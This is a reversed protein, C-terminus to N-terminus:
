GAPALFERLVAPLAEPLDEAILGPGKSRGAAGHLWVAASAAEFAEMGQALLGAIFGALVDGSGATALWPPADFAISARGDPHAVVTDPGKLLVTAGTAAAAARVRAPKGPRPSPEPGFLRAFEGEHPTLAVPKGSRAIAAALTGAEGAFSTLADADLVIARPATSVLAALVLARTAAGVGLGPGLVLANFRRDELIAALDDPGDCPALMIATVHSANITLADRPSALTVLGAGARLAGRASLRAAGTSWPGGSVVLAHGRSYKHGAPSPAPFRARWLAPVNAFARPRVIELASEAIGIDRVRLQGCLTRGPTLFHGPRPRFFCVTADAEVAVGRAFGTDGDLGSPVDVAVVAHRTQRRWVNLREVIARADGELDRALGSGFLADIVLAAGSPDLSAAPGVPGGWRRAAEAADGKLASLNGLLAVDVAFGRARLLRAAIFGDGGNNGPGCLVAVRAGEAALDAAVEAVAAGAREMLELGAVGANMAIREASAMEATTLLEPGIM